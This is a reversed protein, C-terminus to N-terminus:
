WMTDLRICFIAHWRRTVPQLMVSFVSLIFNLVVNAVAAARAQISLSRYKSTINMFSSGAKLNNALKQRNLAM